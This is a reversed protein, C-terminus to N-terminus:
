NTEKHTARHLIYLAPDAVLVLGNAAALVLLTTEVAPSFAWDPRVYAFLFVGYALTAIRASEDVARPVGVVPSRLHLGVDFDEPQTRGDTLASAAAAVSAHVGVRFLVGIALVTEVLKRLTEVADDEERWRRIDERAEDVVSM